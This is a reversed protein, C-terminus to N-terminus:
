SQLKNHFPDFDFLGDEGFTKQVEYCFSGTLGTLRYYM